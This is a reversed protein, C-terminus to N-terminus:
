STLKNGQRLHILLPDTSVPEALVLLSISGVICAFIWKDSPIPSFSPIM